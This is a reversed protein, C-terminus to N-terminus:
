NLGEVLTVRASKKTYRSRADAVSVFSKAIYQVQEWTFGEFGEKKACQKARETALCSMHNITRKLVDSTMMTTRGTAKMIGDKCSANLFYDCIHKHGSESVHSELIRLCIHKITVYRPDVQMVWSDPAIGVMGPATHSNNFDGLGGKKPSKRKKAADEPKLDTRFATYVPVRVKNASLMFSCLEDKLDPIAVALDPESLNRLELRAGILGIHRYIRNRLEGPLRHLYSQQVQQSPVPSSGREPGTMDVVDKSAAEDDSETLDIYAATRPIKKRSIPEDEDDDEEGTMAMHSRKRIRSTHESPTAVDDQSLAAGSSRATRHKTPLEEDEDTSDSSNGSKRLGGSHAADSPIASESPELSKSAARDIPDLFLTSGSPSADDESAFAESARVIKHKTPPEDDEDSCDSEELSRKLGRSGAADGTSASESAESTDRAARDLPGPFLTSSSPSTFESVVGSDDAHPAGSLPQSSGLPSAPTSAHTAHSSSAKWGSTAPTSSSIPSGESDLEEHGAGLQEIHAENDVLANTETTAAHTTPTPTRDERGATLSGGDRSMQASM